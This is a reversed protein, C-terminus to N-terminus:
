ESLGEIPGFEGTEMGKNTEGLFVQNWGLLLSQERHPPTNLNFVTILTILLRSFLATTGSVFRTTGSVAKDM